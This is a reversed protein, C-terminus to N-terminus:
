NLYESAIVGTMVEPTAKVCTTIHSSLWARPNDFEGMNKADESAMARAITKGSANVVKKFCSFNQGLNRIQRETLEPKIELVFVSM